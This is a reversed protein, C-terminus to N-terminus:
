VDFGELELKDFTLKIMKRLGLIKIMDAWEQGCLLVFCEKINIKQNVSLAKYWRIYYEM